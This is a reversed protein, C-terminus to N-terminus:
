PLPSVMSLLVSLVIIAACVSLTSITSSDNNSNDYVLKENQVGIDLNGLLKTIENLKLELQEVISGKVMSDGFDKTLNQNVMRVQDSLTSLSLITNLEDPLKNVINAMQLFNEISQVITGLARTTESRKVFCTNNKQQYKEQIDTANNGEPFIIMSRLSKVLKQITAKPNEDIITVVTEAYQFLKRVREKTTEMNNLFLYQITNKFLSNIGSKSPGIYLTNNYKVIYMEDNAPRRSDHFYGVERLYGMMRLEHDTEPRNTLDKVIGSIVYKQNESKGDPT